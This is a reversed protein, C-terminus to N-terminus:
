GGAGPLNLQQMVQDYSITGQQLNIFYSETENLKQQGEEAAKNQSDALKKAKDLEAQSKEFAKRAEELKAKDQAPPSEAPTPIPMTQLERLKEQAQRLEEEAARQKAKAEEARRRAVQYNSFQDAARRYLASMVQAQKNVVEVPKGVEPVNSTPGTCPASPTAEGTMIQRAQNGIAAAEEYLERGKKAKEDAIRLYDHACAARQAATMQGVGSLDRPRLSAIETGGLPVRVTTGFTGTTETV